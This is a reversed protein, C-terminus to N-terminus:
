IESSRQLRNQCHQNLDFIKAVKEAIEPQTYSSHGGQPVQLFIGSNIGKSMRMFDIQGTRLPSIEDAEGSIYIWQIKRLVSKIRFLNPLWKYKDVNLLANQNFDNELHNERKQSPPLGFSHAETLVWDPVNEILGPVIEERLDKPSNGRLTDTMMLAVEIPKFGSHAWSKTIYDIAMKTTCRPDLVIDLYQELLKLNKDSALAWYVANDVLWSDEITSTKLKDRFNSIKKQIEPYRELLRFNKQIQIQFREKVFQAPSVHAPLPHSLIVGRPQPIQDLQLYANAVLGGYSVGMIYFATQESTVHRILEALDRAIMEGRLFKMIGEPNKKLQEENYVKSEGLGRQDFLVVRFYKTYSSMQKKYNESLTVSGPGGGIAFLYPRDIDHPNLISYGLNIVLSQKPNSWDLPVQIHQLDFLDDAIASSCVVFVIILLIRM